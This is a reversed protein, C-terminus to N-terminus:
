DATQEVREIPQEAEEPGRVVNSVGDAAGHPDPCEDQVRGGVDCPKGWLHRSALISRLKGSMNQHGLALAETM